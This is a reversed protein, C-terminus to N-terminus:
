HSRKLAKAAYPKQLFAVNEAEALGHDEPRQNYGSTLLIGLDPREAHLKKALDWGSVGEPMVVDSVVVSIEDCVDGWLDLAERGSCAEIVTCGHLELLKRVLKRVASEDEVLLVRSGEISSQLPLTPIKEEKRSTHVKQLASPLLIEVRTGQGPESFHDISGSHQRM